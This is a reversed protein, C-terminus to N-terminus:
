VNIKLQTKSKVTRHYKIISVVLVILEIFDLLASTYTRCLINYILILVNPVILVYRMVQLNKIAFSLTFMSGTILAIIDYPTQWFRITVVVYMAIFVFLFHVTYKFNTKEAWYIYICRFISITTIIGGVYADVAFFSGAYFVDAVMQLTLFTPKLKVFYSIAVLILAIIGSIQAIIFGM